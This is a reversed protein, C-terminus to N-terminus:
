GDPGTAAPDAVALMYARCDPDGAAPPDFDIWVSKDPALARRHSPVAGNSDVWPLNTPGGGQGREQPIGPWLGDCYGSPSQATWRV